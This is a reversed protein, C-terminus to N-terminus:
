VNAKLAVVENHVLVQVKGVWDQVIFNTVMWVRTPM